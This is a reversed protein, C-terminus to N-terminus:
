LTAFLDLCHSAAAQQQPKFLDFLKESGSAQALTYATQGHSNVFYPNAGCVLLFTIIELRNKRESQKMKSSRWPQTTVALILPTNGKADRFEVPIQSDNLISYVTLYDAHAAAKLLDRGMDRRKERNIGYPSDVHHNKMGHGEHAVLALSTVILLLIKKM